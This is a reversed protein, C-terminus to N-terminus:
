SPRQWSIVWGPEGAGALCHADAGIGAVWALRDEVYLLPLRSRLWPPVGAERLLNKLSRRPRGPALCLREGGQRLRVLTAGAHLRVGQGAAPRFELAGLVGLDLRTEGRWEALHRRVGSLAAEPTPSLLHIVGRHRRLRWAGFAVDVAADAQAQSLQRWAERLAREGLRAGARELQRRLVNRARAESLAALRSLSLGDGQQAAQADMDALDDLLVATEAGQAATLALRAGAQPFIEALVPMVRHRLANRAHVPDTNSEDEVWALGHTDAWAQLQARTCALLPRLLRAGGPLVREAPMGALARPGGGRMLRLLVTEVQDDRQHALLLFDTAHEGFARYRAARAAAELGEGAARVVVHRVHLPVGLAACCAACHAAWADANPSLGHHVHLADLTCGLARRLEALVHLLVSSDLGGSYAVTVRTGASVRGNLAALVHGILDPADKRSSAM